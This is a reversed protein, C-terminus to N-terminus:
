QSVEVWSTIAFSSSGGAAHTVTSSFTAGPPVKFTNSSSGGCDNWVGNAGVTLGSVLSILQYDCGTATYSGYSMTVQETLTHGTTNTFTTGNSYTSGAACAFSLCDTQAAAATCNANGNAQIGSASGTTCQTPTATFAAVTIGCAAQYTGVTGNGCLATNAPATGSVTYGTLADVVLGKLNVAAFAVGLFMLLSACLLTFKNMKM